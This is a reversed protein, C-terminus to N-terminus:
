PRYLSEVPGYSRQGYQVLVENDRVLIIGFDDDEQGNWTTQGNLKYGWPKLFRDIIYAIWEVFDYHKSEDVPALVASGDDAIEWPCWLGPQGKLQTKAEQQLSYSAAFDMLSDLEPLGPPVNYDVISDDRDQGAHGTGGVFFEGDDGIPLGVAIRLPDPLKEAKEPDRKMRRTEVFQKLYATQEPTLPKDLTFEGNLFTYYGM